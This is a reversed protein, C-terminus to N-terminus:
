DLWTIEDGIGIRGAHIVQCRAGGRWNPTLAAKLGSALTDMRNCPDTECTIQLIAEGIQLRKGIAQEDLDLHDVLLNARRETWDIELPFLDSAQQCAQQWSALSLITVSTKPNKCGRYDGLGTTCNLQASQIETIEGRSKQHTAIGILKPM